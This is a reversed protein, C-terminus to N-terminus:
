EYSKDYSDIYRDVRSEYEQKQKKKEQRKKYREEVSKPRKRWLKTGLTWNEPSEWLFILSKKDPDKFYVAICLSGKPEYHDIQEALKPFMKSFVEFTKEGAVNFMNGEEHNLDIGMMM